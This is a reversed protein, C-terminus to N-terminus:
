HLESPRWAGPSAPNWDEEVGVLLYNVFHLIQV